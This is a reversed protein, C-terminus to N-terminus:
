SKNQIEKILGLYNAAYKTYLNQMAKIFEDRNQVELFTVGKQRLRAYADDELKQAYQKNYTSTENGARIFIDQYNKDVKQWTKDSAIFIQVSFNHGDKLYFPAVEYTALSEYGVVINEAADVVGNQVSAYIEAANIQVPSMGMAAMIDAMIRSSSVRIKIGKLGGLSTIPKKLILNRQGEEAFFVGRIGNKEAQENMRNMIGTGIEGGLINWCHERNRFLFPLPFVAIEPYGFDVLMSANARVFDIAGMQLSEITAKEDGLTSNNYVDIQVHGNTYESVKQSFYKGYITMPHTDESQEAHRLVIKQSEAKKEGDGGAAAISAIICLMLVAMFTKKM